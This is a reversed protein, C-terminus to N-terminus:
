PRENQVESCGVHVASDRFVQESAAQTMLVAAFVFSTGCVVGLVARAGIGFRTSLGLLVGVLNILVAPLWHWWPPPGCLTLSGNTSFVSLLVWATVFLVELSPGGGGLPVACRLHHPPRNM